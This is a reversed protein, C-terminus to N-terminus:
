VVEIAAARAVALSRTLSVTRWPWLGMRRVIGDGLAMIVLERQRGRDLLFVQVAWSGAWHHKGARFEEVVPAWSDLPSAPAGVTEFEADGLVVSIRELIEDASHSTIVRFERVKM